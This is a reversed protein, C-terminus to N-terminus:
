RLYVAGLEALARGQADQLLLRQGELRFRRTATLVDRLQGELVDLPPLCATMTSAARDFTLADGSTEYRGIMQNCGVTALFRREPGSQLVIHPERRNELARVGDGGLRDIRWYTDTLSATSIPRECVEGPLLKIFRDVILTMRDPGEMAPRMALGGEVHVKLPAGPEARADLYARELALYDGEQAIPYRVGTLCEEFLAADAFYTMMGLLFVESLETPELTGDSTLDYPLDSRIPNGQMDMQRLRDPAEVEWFLPMETAGHLFIAGRTPDSYWRGVEDRKLTGDGGGLWERRMHYRQDPWLDLHHRIGECDACPLTGRFTAPLRLGHAPLSRPAGSAEQRVMKLLVELHEPGGEQLVRTITDTTFLLQGERRLTARLAYLGRPDLSAPDYDIAFDIPPQGPNEIVTRGIVTAPADARAIDAIVAEFITGPPLAIRERIMATGELTDASATPIFALAALILGAFGSLRQRAMQRGVWQGTKM